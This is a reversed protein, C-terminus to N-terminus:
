QVVVNCQVIFAAMHAPEVAHPTDSGGRSRVDHAESQALSLFPVGSVKINSDKLDDEGADQDEAERQPFSTGGASSPFANDRPSIM